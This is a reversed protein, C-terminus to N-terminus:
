ENEKTSNDAGKVPTLPVTNKADCAVTEKQTNKETIQGGKPVGDLARSIVGMSTNLEAMIARYSLGKTRLEIIEKDLGAPPRGIRKGKRRALDMGMRTRERILSLEFESFASIIHFQLRGSATTMDIQDKVSIFEVGVDDFSQLTKVIHNMSRFLRDLKLVIVVDVQRGNVLKLLEKLAPRKDHSGSYGHDVLEKTIEWGRAKCYRKLEDIQLEPKQDHHSTSVRAYILARKFDNM